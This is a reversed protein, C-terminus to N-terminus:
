PAMLDARIRTEVRVENPKLTQTTTELYNGASRFNRGMREMLRRPGVLRGMMLAAQGLGTQVFGEMFDHGMRRWASAQPLGPYLRPTVLRIMEEWTLYPYAVAPAKLNIGLAQIAALDDSTLRGGFRKYFGEFAVGFVLVAEM